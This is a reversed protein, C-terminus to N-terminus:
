IKPETWSLLWSLTISLSIFQSHCPRTCSWAPRRSSKSWPDHTPPFLIPTWWYWLVGWSSGLITSIVSTDTPFCCTYTYPHLYVWRIDDAIHPSTGQLIYTTFGSFLLPWFNSTFFTFYSNKRISRISRLRLLACSSDSATVLLTGTGDWFPTAFNCFWRQFQAELVWYKSGELM